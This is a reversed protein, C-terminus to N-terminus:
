RSGGRKAKGQLDRGRGASEAVSFASKLQMADMRVEAYTTVEERLTTALALLDEDDGAYEEIHRATDVLARRARDFDGYRNAETAGARARGAYVRATERDVTRDRPQVDNEAHNAYMFTVSGAVDLSEETAGLLAASVLQTDGEEGLPFTVRIVLDLVQNSVLDGLEVIVRSRGNARRSRFTNLVEAQVGRPLSLSLKAQPVVVDLAEGLESAILDPIQAARSIFYFNGGGGHAIDRLLHEDFDAGVGFASTTIGRRRLEGAHHALTAHNTEGHNAQGDTLLLARSIMGDALFEALQECGRMWGACLDTSSRPQVDRLARRAANKAEATARTAALLVDVETDFTVISFRDDPGLMRIASTVADKALELKNEGDMSGSRDLIFSANVPLRSDRHQAPSVAISALLYRVSADRARVLSRDARLSLTTM